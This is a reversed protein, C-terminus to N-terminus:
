QLILRFVLTHEQTVSLRSETGDDRDTIELLPWDSTHRLRRIEAWKDM